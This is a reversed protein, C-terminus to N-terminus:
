LKFLLASFMATKDQEFHRRRSILKKIKTYSKIPQPCVHLVIIWDFIPCAQTLLVLVPNPLNFWNKSRTTFLTLKSYSFSKYMNLTAVFYEIYGNYNPLYSPVFIQRHYLKDHRLISESIDKLRWLCSAIVASIDDMYLYQWM